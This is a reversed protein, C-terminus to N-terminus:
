PLKVDMPPQWGHMKFIFYILAVFALSAIGKISWKGFQMFKEEVWEKLAEKVAEKMDIKKMSVTSIKIEEMDQDTM